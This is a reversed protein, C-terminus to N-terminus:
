YVSLLRLQVRKETVCEYTSNMLAILANMICIVFVFIVWAWVVYALRTVAMTESELNGDDFSNVMAMKFACLLATEFQDFPSVTKEPGILVHFFCTIGVLLLLCVVLFSIISGIIAELLEVFFGYQKFPKLFFLANVWLLLVSISTVTRLSISDSDCLFMVFSTAGLCFGSLQIINWFDHFYNYGRHFQIIELGLFYLYLLFSICGCVFSVMQTRQHPIDPSVNSANSGEGSFTSSMSAGRAISFSSFITFMSVLFTYIIANLYFRHSVKIWLATIGVRLNPNDFLEIPGILFSRMNEFDLLGPLLVTHILWGSDTEDYNLKSYLGSKANCVANKDVTLQELLKIVGSELRHYVSLENHDDSTDLYQDVSSPQQRRVGKFSVLNLKRLFDVAV